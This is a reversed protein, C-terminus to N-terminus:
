NFRYKEHAPVTRTLPYAFTLLYLLDDMAHLKSEMTLSLGYVPLAFIHICSLLRHYTSQPVSIPNSISDDPLAEQLLPHKLLNGFHIWSYLSGTCSCELCSSCSTRLRWPQFLHGLEFNSCSSPLLCSPSHCTILDSLLHPRGHPASLAPLSYTYFRLV